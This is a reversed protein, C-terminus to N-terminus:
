NVTFKAKVPLRLRKGDTSELRGIYIYYGNGKQYFEKPMIIVRSANVYIDVPIQRFSGEEYVRVQKAAHAELSKNLRITWIKKKDSTSLPRGYLAASKLEEPEEVPPPTVPPQESPPNLSQDKTNTTFAKLCVNMGEQASLDYWGAGDPRVFSEGPNAVVEYISIQNSNGQINREIPIPYSEKAHIRVVIAFKRGKVRIPNDLDLTHYGAHSLKGSKVVVSHDLDGQYDDLIRVEYSLNPEGAYFAISRLYEEAAKATFVNAFWHSSTGKYGYRGIKGFEDHQYIQDYWNPERADIYVLNDRGITKDEYSVYYYGRDGFDTGWSNKVIWAGDKSPYTNFNERPYNDDWGVILVEHDEGRESPVYQSATQPNYYSSYPKAGFIATQVGGYRYIMQKIEMRNIHYAARVHSLNPLHKNLSPGGYPDLREDVPGRGSNFYALGMRMNGGLIKPNYYGSHNALHNESFDYVRPTLHSELAAVSAFAWCTNLSGQDRIETVRNQARLDFKAPLNMKAEYSSGFGEEDETIVEYMPPAYGSSFAEPHELYYLFEEPLPAVEGGVAIELTGESAGPEVGAVTEMGSVAEMGAANEEEAHVVPLPQMLFGLILLFVMYRKM